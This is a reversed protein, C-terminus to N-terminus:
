AVGHGDATKIRCAAPTSRSARASRAGGQRQPRGEPRYTLKVFRPEQASGRNVGLLGGLKAKKIAAKDLVEIGLGAAGAM